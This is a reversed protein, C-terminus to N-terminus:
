KKEMGPTAGAGAKTACCFATESGCKKCVHKIQDTKAKGHGVAEITTQCGPCAHKEGTTVKKVHEKSETTVYTVTVTKCKPCVMAVADGAKLAEVDAETKLPQNFEMLKTAGGKAGQQGFTSSTLGLALAATLTLVINKLTSM